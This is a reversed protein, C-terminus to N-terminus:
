GAWGLLGRPLSGILSQWELNNEQVELLRALEGQQELKRAQEQSAELAKDQIIKKARKQYKPLEKRITSIHGPNSELVSLPQDLELQQFIEECEKITSSKKTWTQERELRSKLAEKTVHDSTLRSQIHNSVHGEKYVQSPRKFGLIKPHFIALDSVGKAPFGLWKKLFGKALHDLAMLHTQHINHVSLYFRMSPLIYRQYVAAKFEGRVETSDLNSLKKELKSNLFNFHDAPTNRHTVTSGLFKAPDDEMTSIPINNGQKDKLTFQTNTVRGQQISLSRCKSPKYTLGMSSAKEQADYMLKQHKTKHFTNTEFDDAFPKTIVKTDGSQYGHSEKLSELYDILPQFIILFIIGSYNDGQAIGKFFKFVESVWEKTVM